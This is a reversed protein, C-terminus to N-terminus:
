IQSVEIIKINKIGTLFFFFFHGRMMERVVPAVKPVPKGSILIKIRCRLRSFDMSKRDIRESEEQGVPTTADVKVMRAHTIPSAYKM